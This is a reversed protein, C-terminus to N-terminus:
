IKKRQGNKLTLLTNIANEHSPHAGQFSIGNDRWGKESCIV